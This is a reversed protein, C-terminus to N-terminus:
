FYIVFDFCRTQLYFLQINKFKKGITMFTCRTYKSCKTQLRIQYGISHGISEIREAAIREAVGVASLRRPQTCVVNLPEKGNGAVLWDDLIYQPVQTSKGCGTDGCIIIIQSSKITNIIDNQKAWAPLTKRQSIMKQYRSQSVKGYHDKVLTENQKLISEM